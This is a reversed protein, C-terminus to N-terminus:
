SYREQLLTKMFVNIGWQSAVPQQTYPLVPLYPAPGFETTITFTSTGKDQQLQIVQDWWKLHTELAVHWEPAGPDSIQPGQTFGVRSHIHETRSIALQLAEPQDNLFTEAVNCWHSVDLTLHLNPIKELYEKTVHAAFSFKGRHTEHIIKIGTDKSIADALEILKNNQEFSFYDKGTQSNIFVPYGAALNRLRIEYNKKHMEFNSDVTEWHQAILLLEQQQIQEVIKQRENINLPLSMEVGTYGVGRVKKLFEPFPLDESGWHPCYFHIEM